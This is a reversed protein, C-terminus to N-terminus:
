MYRANNQNDHSSVQSFIAFYGIFSILIFLIRYFTKVDEVQELTYRGGYEQLAKDMLSPQPKGVHFASQFLPRRKRMSLAYRTVNAILRLPNGSNSQIEFKPAASVLVVIFVSVFINILLFVYSVFSEVYIYPLTVTTLAEGIALWWYYWHFYSSLEGSSAGQMQDVGFPILNVRIGVLGLGIVTYGTATLVICGVSWYHEATFIPDMRTFGAALLASGLWVMNLSVLIVKYKGFYTDSLFGAVPYLLHVFGKVGLYVAEIRPPTFQNYSNLSYFLVLFSGREIFGLLGFMFYVLLLPTNHPCKRFKSSARFRRPTFSVYDCCTQEVHQSESSRNTSGFSSSSRENQSTDAFSTGTWASGSSFSKLSAHASVYYESPLSSSISNNLHSRKSKGSSQLESNADSTIKEM